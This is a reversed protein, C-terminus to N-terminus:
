ISRKNADGTVENLEELIRLLNEGKETLQTTKIRENEEIKIIAGLKELDSIIINLSGGPSVIGRSLVSLPKKDGSRKIEKLLRRRRDWYKM